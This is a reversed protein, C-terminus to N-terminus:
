GVPLFHGSKNRTIERQESLLMHPTKLLLRVTWNHHSGLATAADQATRAGGGYSVPFVSCRASLTPALEGARIDM